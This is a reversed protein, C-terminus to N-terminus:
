VEIRPVKVWVKGKNTYYIDFIYDKEIAGIERIGTLECGERDFYEYTM